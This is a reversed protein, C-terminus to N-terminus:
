RGVLPHEWRPQVIARCSKRVPPSGLIAALALGAAYVVMADRNSDVWELWGYTRVGHGVQPIVLAHLLYIYMTGTGLYTVFPISRRPVCGLVFLAGLAGAAIYVLRTGLQVSTSAWIGNFHGFNRGSVFAPFWRSILIMTGILCVIGAVSGARMGPRDFVSPLGTRRLYVGLLFLPFLAVTRAAAFQTGFAPSFGVLIAAGIVYLWAFRLRLVYPLAVRWFVLALLFWMAFTPRAPDFIWTGSNLGRQLSQLGLFVLYVFFINRVLKNAQTATPGTQYAFYGALVILVPMRLPWLGTGLDTVLQPPNPIQAALHLPVVLAVAVFRANDIWPDRDGVMDDASDAANSSSKLVEQSM